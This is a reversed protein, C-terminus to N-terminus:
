FHISVSWWGLASGLIDIIMMVFYTVWIVPIIILVLGLMTDRDYYVDRALMYLIITVVSLLVPAILM